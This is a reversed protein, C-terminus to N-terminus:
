LGKMGLQGNMNNKRDKWIDVKGKGKEETLKNRKM